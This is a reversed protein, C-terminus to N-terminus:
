RVGVAGLLANAAPWHAQNTHGIILIGSGPEAITYKSTATIIVVPKTAALLQNVLMSIDGNVGAGTNVGQPAICFAADFDEACVSALDVLDNMADRARRDVIFRQLAKAAPLNDRGSVTGTFESASGGGPAALVVDLGVDNFLYYVDILGVYEPVGGNQSDANADLIILVRM